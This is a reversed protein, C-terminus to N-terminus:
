TVRFRDIAQGALGLVSIDVAGSGGVKLHLFGHTLRARIRVPYGPPCPKLAYLGAGGGGHVVYTVGQKQFRQYNHDHGSLVLEVGYREFLPVWRRQVADSGRHGGCTYPAHHVSVIRRLKTRRALTRRLWRTQATTIANSDLVILQVDKVRRVYYPGPMNLLGFQYRGRRFEVDHNGLTGAVGVGAASLWGFTSNWNSAFAVGRTYDNDGLTVLLDAPVRTEHDRVAAGIARQREGGVGFDGVGIISTAGRAPPVVLLAAVICIRLIM